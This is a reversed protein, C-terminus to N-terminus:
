GCTLKFPQISRIIIVLLLVNNFTILSNEGACAELEMRIYLMSISVVYQWKKLLRGIYSYIFFFM